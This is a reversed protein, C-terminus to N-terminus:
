RLRASAVSCRSCRASSSCRDCSVGSAPASRRAFRSIAVALSSEAGAARERHECVRRAHVLMVLTMFMAAIAPAIEAVTISPRAYQERLLVVGVNRNTVPYARELQRAKVRVAERAASLSVGPRLRGFVSVATAARDELMAGYAPWVQDIPAIGDIDVLPRVGHFEPPMVGIVTVPHGNIRSPAGVVGSDGAFQAQWAKYTLVIVPHALAGDIRALSSRGGSCRAFARADLFLEGHRRRDLHPGRRSRTDLEVVRSTYAALSAFVTTDARYDRFDPFSLEHPQPLREETRRARRSEKGHAAPLPRFLLNDVVSYM